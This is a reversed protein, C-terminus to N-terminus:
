SAMHYHVHKSHIMVYTQAIAPIILTTPITTSDATNRPSLLIKVTLYAYASLSPGSLSSEICPINTVCAVIRVSRLLIPTEYRLWTNLHKYLGHLALYEPMCFACWLSLLIRMKSKTPSMKAYSKEMRAAIVPSSGLGGTLSMRSQLITTSAYHGNQTEGICAYALMSRLCLFICPKCSRTHETLPISSQLITTPHVIAIRPNVIYEYALM